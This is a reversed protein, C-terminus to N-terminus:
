PSVNYTNTLCRRPLSLIPEIGFAEALAVAQDLPFFKTQVLFDPDIGRRDMFDARGVICFRWKPLEIRFRHSLGRCEVIVLGGAPIAVLFRFIRAAM